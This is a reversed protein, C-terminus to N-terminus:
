AKYNMLRHSVVNAFEQLEPKNRYAYARGAKLSIGFKQEEKKYEQEGLGLFENIKSLNGAPETLLEEYRLVLLNRPAVSRINKRGERIYEEWLSFGGELTCCRVSESSLGFEGSDLRVFSKPTDVQKRRAEMGKLSRYKLSNAVDVGHREIYIVRAEPFIKLWLPLTYVNRPDKWGWLNQQKRFFRNKFFYNKWGLYKKFATSHIARELVAITVDLVDKNDLLYHMAPPYDWRGGLENFLRINLEQFFKAEHNGSIKKGMFVGSDDLIRSLLSTGSRHMGAVIVPKDM